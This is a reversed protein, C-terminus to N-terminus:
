PRRLVRTRDPAAVARGLFAFAVLALGTIWGGLSWPQPVYLGLLLGASCLGVGLATFQWMGYLFWFPLYHAGVVIMFAPYFWALHHLTAAGVLPLSAPVTFAIQRALGALPNEPSLSVRGGMAKLVLQTLPFIFIGGVALLVIANRPMSATALAASGLWLLGSVLQGAFGGRFVTRIERQAEEIQM